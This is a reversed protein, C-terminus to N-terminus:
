DHPTESIKLCNIKSKEGVDKDSRLMEIEGVVIFLPNKYAM